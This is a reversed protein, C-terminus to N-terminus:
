FGALLMKQAFRWIYHEGIIRNIRYTVEAGINNDVDNPDAQHENENNMGAGYAGIHDLVQVHCFQALMMVKQLNVFNFPKIYVFRYQHIAGKIFLNTFAYQTRHIYM